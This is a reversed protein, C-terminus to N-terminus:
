NSVALCSFKQKELYACAKRAADKDAFGGFRARYLTAGGSSVPETYPSASALVKAGKALARDLIDQAQGQSPAAAIQIRWGEFSPTAVPAAAPTEDDQAVDGQAGDAAEPAGAEPSDLAFLSNAGATLSAITLPAGSARAAM